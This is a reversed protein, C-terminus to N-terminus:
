RFGGGGGGGGGGGSFGGGSFGGSFGGSRGSSSPRSGFTSSASDLMRGLGRSMSDLSAGLGRSMSDLSPAGSRGPGARGPAALGPGRRDDRRYGGTHVFFPVYWTPVPMSEVRSFKRTWSRELGFAIAYPLYREYQETAEQVDTYREIEQLYRKFARWRAAEEAGKRTKVPMHQGVIILTILTAGMGVAPCIIAGSVSVLAVMAVFGLIFFGFLLAVGIGTYRSRVKDPRTRFFGRAVMQDYLGSQIKPITSYFKNKLSSMKKEGGGTIKQLLLKEFSALDDTPKETRRFVFDYSSGFLGSSAQEEIVLYGRRALDVLTALIDQMDAKEDLLTGAVGPPADSPPETLYDTPLEVRPDRGRLYWLLILLLPGGILLLAGLVGLGLDIVPRVDEMRQWSAPRGAVIGSPFQVRVEFEQGPELVEDATFVVRQGGQGIVSAETGYAEVVDATAGDPLNVTVTSAQVPFSRDAFVAKWWVQDGGDYYRLGGHVTYRLVYTRRENSRPELLGWVIEYADGAQGVTVWVPQGDETASIDSISTLRDSPISRYGERFTGSTFVIVQTEQVVFTGDTQVTIDVDFREWYLTKSQAQASLGPLVLVLVLAALLSLLYRNL